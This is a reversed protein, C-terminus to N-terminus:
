ALADGLSEADLLRDMWRQLEAATAKRVLQQSEAPLEGFRHQLLHLLAEALGEVRGRAHGEQRLREATTMLTERPQNLNRTFAMQLDDVPAQTVELLYCAFAELADDGPIPGPQQEVQRLLDGWRDIAAVVADTALGRLSRLALLTLQAFPTMGPRRLAAEDQKALDDVFLQQRPQARQLLASAADDPTPEDSGETAHRPEAGHTLVIALLPPETGSGRNRHARRLYVSYRLVQSRLLPDHWSKHELILLVRRGDRSQVAFAADLLGSRLRPGHVGEGLPALTTWDFADALPRPLVSVLWGIVHCPTGFTRRFLRDHPSAM